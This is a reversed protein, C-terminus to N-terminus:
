LKNEYTLRELKMRIEQIENELIDEKTEKQKEEKGKVPQETPLPPLFEEFKKVREKMDKLVKKYTQKQLLELKRLKKYTQIHKQIRIVSQENLLLDRKGGLLSGYDRMVHLSNAM